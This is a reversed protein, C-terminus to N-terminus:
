RGTFTFAAWFLPHAAGYRERRARIRELQAARLAEAKGRGDALHAFFREMLLASERDDIQWLTAVVGEAGAQQFAQRLGAVGEGQQVAGLGTECASLVVLETGRLDTSVIERATLVGTEGGAAGVDNVRNCGALLLGCRLLPDEPGADAPREGKPDAPPEPLAYGHTSLVLVKPGKARRFVGALAQQGLHVRPEQGTYKRVAPAVREAEAATYPLRRAKGLGPLGKGASRLGDGLDLAALSPPLRLEFRDEAEAGDEGRVTRRGAIVEGRLEGELRSSQTRMTLKTGAQAWTGRAAVEGDEGRVLLEGGDRFEFACDWTGIKGALKRGALAPGAAEEKAAGLLREAEATAAKPDLDFDPDALVLPPGAKHGLKLPNLMLDRGSVVYSVTHKEVVYTKEDLPLAAWPVLWLEGDPCLVWREAGDLHPRLPDLVLKALARLPGALAKEAAAEGREERVKRGEELARRAERVAAEIRDAPGLDVVQVPGDWPTVWAAYRAPLWAGKVKGAKFDWPKFRAIDVFVGGPPLKQRFDDLEIWPDDRSLRYDATHLRASLAQEQEILGKQRKRDAETNLALRSLERRVDELEALLKRAEAGPNDRALLLREALAEQAVGKSNLLWAAGRLRGDEGSEGALLLSLAKHVEEAYSERLFTLQDAEGVAPLVDLTHRRLSRLARDVLRVAEGSQGRAAALGALAAGTQATNPHDKGLRTRYIENARRYHAEAKVPQGSAMYLLALNALFDAARPHDKGLRAETAELCRRYLPEAERHRGQGYYAVALGNLALAINPHDPGLQTEYIRLARRALPEAEAYRETACFLSVLGVLSGATVSSDKGLKTERIELGRHLLAEAAKYRGTRQHVSALNGLITASRPHGEGFRTEWVKLSAEYLTRARSLQGLASYVLGLDNLSEATRDHDKGLKAERITLARRLLAEARAYRGTELYLLGLSALAHATEPHDPGLKAELVEVSGRVLSEAEPFRGMTGCLLGLDRLLGAGYPHDRGLTARTGEVARRYLGEAKPYAGTAWYLVALSQVTSITEAHEKGRNAEYIALSRLLLSEAETYRGAQVYVNALNQLPAATAADEKGWQAEVIGLRRRFLPEAKAYDGLVMYVSAPRFLCLAVRKDDHGFAREAQRVAAHYHVLAEAYREQKELAKGKDLSDRWGGPSGPQGAASSPGFLLLALLLRVATSSPRM